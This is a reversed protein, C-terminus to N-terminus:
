VCSFEEWFLFDQFDDFVYECAEILEFIFIEFTVTVNRQGANEVV